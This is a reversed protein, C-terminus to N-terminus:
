KVDIRELVGRHKVIDKYNWQIRKAKKLWRHLASVDVQSKDSYRIEAAKFSGEKTLLAKDFSQGRWFLLRVCEKLKHYGVIPNGELFWVPSGHWIKGVSESLFTEIEMKLLDCIAKDVDNQSRNYDNIDVIGQANM